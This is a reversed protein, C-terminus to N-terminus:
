RLAAPLRRTLPRLQEADNWLGPFIAFKLDDRNIGTDFYRRLRDGLDDPGWMNDLEHSEIVARDREVDLERKIVKARTPGLGAYDEVLRANRWPFKDFSVSGHTTAYSPNHNPRLWESPIPLNAPATVGLAVKEASMHRLAIRAFIVCFLPKVVNLDVGEWEGCSNQIDFCWIFSNEKLQAITYLDTRLQLSVLADAKWPIASMM